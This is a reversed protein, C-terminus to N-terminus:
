KQVETVRALARGIPSSADTVTVKPDEDSPRTDYVCIDVIDEGTDPDVLNYRFNLDVNRHAQIEIWYDDEAGARLWDQLAAHLIEFPVREEEQLENNMYLNEKRVQYEAM